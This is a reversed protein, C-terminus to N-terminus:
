VQRSSFFVVFVFVKLAAVNHFAQSGNVCTLSPRRISLQCLAGDHKELVCLNFAHWDVASRRQEGSAPPTSENALFSFFFFWPFHWSPYRHSVCIIFRLSRFSLQAVNTRLVLRCRNIAVTGSQTSSRQWKQKHGSILPAARSKLRWVQVSPESCPVRGWFAARQKTGTLRPFTSPVEANTGPDRLSVCSGGVFAVTPDLLTPAEYHSASQTLVPFTSWRKTALTWMRSQLLLGDVLPPFHEPLFSKFGKRSCFYSLVDKVM